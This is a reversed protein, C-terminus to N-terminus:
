ILRKNLCADILEPKSRLRDIWMHMDDDIGALDAEAKDFLGIKCYSFARFFLCTDNYYLFDNEKGIEIATTLCEIADKFRELDILYWSKEFHSAPENHKLEIAKNIDSLASDLDKLRRYVHSRLSWTWAEDPLESVLKSSCVLAEEPDTKALLVIKESHAKKNM